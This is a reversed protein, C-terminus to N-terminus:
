RQSWPTQDIFPAALSGRSIDYVKQRSVGLYAAVTVASYDDLLVEVAAARVASARSNLHAVLASVEAALLAAALPGGFRDAWDKDGSKAAAYLGDGGDSLVDRVLEARM